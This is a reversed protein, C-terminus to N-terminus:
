GEDYGPRSDSWGLEYRLEAAVRELFGLEAACLSDVGNTTIRRLIHDIRADRQDRYRREAPSLEQEEPDELIGREPSEQPAGPGEGAHEVV